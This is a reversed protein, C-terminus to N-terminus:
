RTQPVVTPRITTHKGNVYLHVPVPNPTTTTIRYRMVKGDAWSMDVTLNGRARIGKVSGTKWVEPLAPLLTVRDGLSQILLESMGGTIGYTGDLQMPAHNGFLNDLLNYRVYNKVMDHAKEPEGLRAWVATRWPWTWSRRNDATLGRLELSRAAAKALEPTQDLTITNGPFVGILHSTHRHGKVKDPRDVIWEQLYGGPAIRNPALRNRKSILSAAWDADTQLTNAARASSDFLEWILQQDHMCGDEVPGWEHSWGEPSVLTGAPLEALEPYKDATLKRTVSHYKMKNKPATPDIPEDDISILGEGKDGLEKLRTEWFACINRMLPYGVNRLYDKDLTFLYHDWVHLAYWANVPPNWMVWGGGGWPNQSIRTTWGRVNDGFHTRTMEALPEEMAQMFDIFTMHCESLNAVEAGWYCMQLNINNHYDCAWPAHVMENWIGQLTLPLNGPRSGAILMYRGYQYLLAELEPDNPSDAKRYAALREDTPLSATYSDTSGLNISMRDYLARHDKIHARRLSVYKRSAAAALTKANRPGPAEGKWGDAYSMKYDTGLSVYVTLTTAGQVELYPMGEASFVPTQADGRGAYTVDVNKSGGHVSVSGGQSKVLVRGEFQEGNALTGSMILTDNGSVSYSVSHCPTLAIRASLEGRKSVSARYVLLDDPHSVFCERKHTVGDETTFSSRAMANQLDLSRRYDAREGEPLQFDIYLNGFPQYSGFHEKGAKPGYVYGEGNKPLNPGGSWLSVENLNIRERRDGGFLTGGIRGNGVPLSQSAWPSGASKDAAKGPMNGSQSLGETWPLATPLVIGPQTYWLCHPSHPAAGTTLLFAAPVAFLLSLFLSKMSTTSTLLLPSAPPRAVAQPPTAHRAETAPKEDPCPVRYRTCERM